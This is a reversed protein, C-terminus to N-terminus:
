KHYRTMEECEVAIPLGDAWFPPRGMEEAVAQLSVSGCPVECRIEDHTHLVIPWGRKNEMRLMAAGQIDRSAAQVVNETLLGGYSFVGEFKKKGGRKEKDKGVAWYHFAQQMEGRLENKVWEVSPRAYSLLRGSPLRCYLFSKGCVFKIRGQLIGVEQGPNKVATLSAEEIAPWMAKTAPHQDRWADVLLRIATYIQPLLDAHQKHEVQLWLRKREARAWHEADAAAEVAAAIDALKAGYTAAMSRFAGVGGQYGLALEMVKGIQRQDSSVDEVPIGFARSYALKYLDPGTKADYARFADLKWDEGALWALVRGEINAFDGGVIVRNAGPAIMGRLSWSVVDLPAGYGFRIADADGRFLEICEAVEHAKLKPRPLNQVQIGRASWRGTTTGHFQYQGRVRGDAGAQGLMKRLKATSAKGAEKRILLVPRAADPLNPDALATRVADADLAPMQYGLGAIYDVIGAVQGTTQVAGGAAKRMEDNLRAAESQLV